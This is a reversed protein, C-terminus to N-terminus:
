ASIANLMLASLWAVAPQASRSPTGPSGRNILFEFADGTKTCCAAPMSISGFEPRLSSM